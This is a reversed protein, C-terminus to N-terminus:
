PRTLGFGRLRETWAETGRRWGVQAQLKRVAAAPAVEVVRQATSPEVGLGQSTLESMVRESPALNRYVSHVHAHPSQLSPEFAAGHLDEDTQSSPAAEVGIRGPRRSSGASWAAVPTREVALIRVDPQLGSGLAGRLIGAVLRYTHAQDPSCRFTRACATRPLRM